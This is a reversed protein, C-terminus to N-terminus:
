REPTEGDAGSAPLADSSRPSSVAREWDQMTRNELSFAPHQGVLQLAMSLDDLVPLDAWAIPGRSPWLRTMQESPMAWCGPEAYVIVAALDGIALACGYVREAAEQYRDLQDSPVVSMVGTTQGFNLAGESQHHRSLWVGFDGPVGSSVAHRAHGPIMLRYNQATNLVVATKVLWRALVPQDEVPLANRGGAPFLVPRVLLELESMWGGNCVACVEGAVFARAPIPGRVSIPRGLFDRHVPHFPEDAANLETLLWRPFIHERARLGETGDCMWCFPVPEDVRWARLAGREALDQDYRRRRSRQAGM